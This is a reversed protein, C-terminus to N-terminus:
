PQGALIAAIKRDGTSRLWLHSRCGAWHPAAPYTETLTESSKIPGFHENLLIFFLDRNRRFKSIQGFNAARNSLMCQQTALCQVTRTQQGHRKQAM